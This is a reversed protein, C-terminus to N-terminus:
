MCWSTLTGHLRQSRYLQWPGLLARRYFQSRKQDQGNRDWRSNNVALDGLNMLETSGVPRWGSGIQKRSRQKSTSSHVYRRTIGMVRLTGRALRRGMICRGSTLGASVGMRWRAEPVRGTFIREKVQDRLARVTSFVLTEPPSITRGNKPQPPM